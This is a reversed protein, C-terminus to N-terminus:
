AISFSEGDWTFTVNGTMKDELPATGSVSTIAATGSMITGGNFTVATASSQGLPPLTGDWECELTFAGLDALEGFIKRRYNNDSMRTADIVPVEVGDLSFGIIAFTFGSHTISLGTGVKATIAM